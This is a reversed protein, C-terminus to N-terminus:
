QNIQLLTKLSVLLEQKVFIKESVRYELHTSAGVALQEVWLLQNRTFFVSGVVIGSPVVSDPLLLYLHFPPCRM